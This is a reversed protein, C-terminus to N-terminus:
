AGILDLFINELSQQPYNTFINALTGNYILKGQHIIGIDDCLYEAESLIHTSLIITKGRKKSENIFDVITRSTLVDLGLTPEDLILIEPNTIMMRAISVKQKEGTSMKGCHKNLISKMDLLKVIGNFRDNITKKDIGNLQGFYQVIEGPKLRDYLGTNGSIFGLRKRHEIKEAYISKGNYLVDGKSPSLLTAIIRLTTTKGAGNPGLLGFIRGSEVKFSVGQVAKVIGKKHSKFNKYIEKVELM